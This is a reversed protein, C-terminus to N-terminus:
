LLWQGELKREFQFMYIITKGTLLLECAMIKHCMHFLNVSARTVCVCLSEHKTNLVELLESCNLIILAYRDTTQRM